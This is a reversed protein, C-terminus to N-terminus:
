SDKSFLLPLGMMPRGDYVHSRGHPGDQDNYHIFTQAHVNGKFPERWHEIVQGCYALMDGPKMVLSIGKPPNKKLVVKNPGIIKKIGSEGSPDIFIRWPDGGLHLTCSTECSERDIHRVLEDGKKYIRAFAYCPVLNRGTIKRMLPLLKMQLTELAIDGYKCFTNPVQTDEWTGWFGGKSGDKVAGKKILFESVERHNILYNYIFNALQRPIARRVIEYKKNPDKFMIKEMNNLRGGM